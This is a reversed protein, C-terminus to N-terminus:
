KFRKCDPCNTATQGKWKVQEYGELAQELGEIHDNCTGDVLINPWWIKSTRGDETEEYYMDCLVKTATAFTRIEQAEYEAIAKGPCLDVKQTIPNFQCEKGPAFTMKDTDPELYPNNYGRPTDLARQAAKDLDRQTVPDTHPTDYDDYSKPVYKDREGVFMGYYERSQSLYSQGFTDCAVTDILLKKDQYDTPLHKFYIMKQLIIDEKEEQFVSNGQTGYLTEDSNPQTCRIADEYRKERETKIEERKEDVQKKIKAQFIEEETPEPAVTTLATIIDNLRIQFDDYSEDLMPVIKQTKELELPIDFFWTWNCTEVKKDPWLTFFCNTLDAKEHNAQAYALGTGLVLLALIPLTISKM